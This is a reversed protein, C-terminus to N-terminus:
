VYGIFKIGAVRCKSSGNMVFEYANADQHETLVWDNWGEFLEKNGDFKKVLVDDNDSDLVTKGFLSSNHFVGMGLSYDGDASPVPAPMFMFKDLHILWGPPAKVGM